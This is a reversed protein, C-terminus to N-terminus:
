GSLTGHRGNLGPYLTTYAFSCTTIINNEGGSVHLFGVIM